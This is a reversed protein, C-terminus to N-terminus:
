FRRPCTHIQCGKVVRCCCVRKPVPFFLIMHGSVNEFEGFMELRSLSPSICNIKLVKDIVTKFFYYM